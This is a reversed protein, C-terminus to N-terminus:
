RAPTSSAQRPTEPWRCASTRTPTGSRIFQFLPYYYHGADRFVFVGGRFLADAFLWVFLGAISLLVILRPKTVTISANSRASIPFRRQSGGTM